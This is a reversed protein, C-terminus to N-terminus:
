KFKLHNLICISKEQVDSSFKLYIAHKGTMKALAPVAIHLDTPEAPM